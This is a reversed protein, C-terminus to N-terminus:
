ANRILDLIRKGDGDVPRFGPIIRYNIPAATILGAILASVAGFSVLGQVVEWDNPFVASLFRWGFALLFSAAPGAAAVCIRKVRAAPLEAFDYYGVYFTFPRLFFEIGAMHFRLPGPQDGLWIRGGKGGTALGVFGHGLEHILTNFPLILLWGIITVVITQM